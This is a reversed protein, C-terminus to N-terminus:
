RVRGCEVLPQAKMKAQHVLTGVFESGEEFLKLDQVM